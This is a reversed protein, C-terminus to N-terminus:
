NEIEIYKFFINLITYYKTYIDFVIWIEININKQPFQLVCNKEPDNSSYFTFFFFQM